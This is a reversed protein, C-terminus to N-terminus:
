DGSRRWDPSARASVFASAGLVLSVVLWVFAAGRGRESMAATLIVTTGVALDSATFRRVSADMGEGVPAESVGRAEVEVGPVVRVLIDLRRTPHGIDLVYDHSPLVYSVAVRTGSPPLVGRFGAQGNSLVLDGPVVGAAGPTLGLADRALPANWLPISEPESVLTRGRRGEVDVIEDVQLGSSGPTVVVHRLSVTLDAVPKRVVLSDYVLVDLSVPEDALDGGHVPPSWYVVGDHRASMLFVTGEDERGSVSFRFQGSRDTTTSDIVSGSDATVRHLQVPAGAVPISDRLIVRGTLDQAAAPISASLLGTLVVLGTHLATRGTRCAARVRSRLM